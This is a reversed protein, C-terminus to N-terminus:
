NQVYFIIGKLVKTDAWGAGATTAYLTCDKDITALANQDGQALEAFTDQGAASVDITSATFYDPDDAATEAANMYGSGDTGKLGLDLTASTGMAGFDFAGGVVKVGRPLKVLDITDAITLAGDNTHTFTSMRVRGFHQNAKIFTGAEALTLEAGVLAAM